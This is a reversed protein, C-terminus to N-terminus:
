RSHSAPRRSRLRHQVQLETADNPVRWAIHHVSGTGWTGQRGTPDEKLDLVRGSRGGALAFRRWGDEQGIEEFGLTGTLLDITPAASRELLRVGHLGRVQHAEPVVSKPWATFDRTDATEM